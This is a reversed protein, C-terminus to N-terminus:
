TFVFLHIEKLSINLFSIALFRRGLGHTEVLRMLEKSERFLIYNKLHHSKFTFNPQNALVKLEKNEDKKIDLQIELKAKAEVLKDHGVLQEELSAKTERLEAEAKVEVKILEAQLKAVEEKLTDVEKRYHRTNGKSDELDKKFRDLGKKLQSKEEEDLSRKKEMELKVWAVADTKGEEMKDMIYKIYYLSDQGDNHTQLHKVLKEHTMFM